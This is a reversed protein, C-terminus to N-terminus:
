LYAPLGAYIHMTRAKAMLTHHLREMRGIHVSTYPATYQHTMGRLELWDAMDQSKQEGNNTRYIKVKSGVKLKELMNGLNSSLSLM